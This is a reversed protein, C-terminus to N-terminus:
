ILNGENSADIVGLTAGWDEGVREGDVRVRGEGQIISAEVKGDDACGARGKLGRTQREDHILEEEHAV